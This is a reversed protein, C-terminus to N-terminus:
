PYSLYRHTTETDACVKSKKGMRQLNKKFALMEQLLFWPRPSTCFNLYTSNLPFCDPAPAQGLDHLHLHCCPTGPRVCGNTGKFCRARPKLVTTGTRMKAELPPTNLMQLPNQHVSLILRTNPRTRPMISQSLKLHMLM